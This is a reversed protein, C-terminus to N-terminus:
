LNNGANIATLFNNFFTVFRIAEIYINDFNYKIISNIIRENENTKKLLMLISVNTISPM